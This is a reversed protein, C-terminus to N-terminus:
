KLRPDGSGIGRVQDDAVVVFPHAELDLADRRHELMHWDVFAALEDAQQKDMVSLGSVYWKFLYQAEGCERCGIWLRDASM